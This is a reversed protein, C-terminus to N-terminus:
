LTTELKRLKCVFFGEMVGDPIIRRALRLAPDFSKNKWAELGPEMADLQLEIEEVELAGAFKALARSV